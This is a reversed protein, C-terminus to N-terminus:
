PVEIAKRRLESLLVATAVSVNLSESSNEANGFRPITIKHTALKILEESLGKSENGMMLIGNEPLNNKYINTGGLVAAFVPIREYKQKSERIAAILDTYILRVRFVAGMTSQLVKPNLIDVTAKSCLIQKVGFWDATRVITGLNGPDQIDHLAVTLMENYIFSDSYFDDNIAVEAFIGQPTKQSTIKLAENETIEVKEINLPLSVPILGKMKEIYFLSKVRADSNLAELVMKEGEVLFAQNEQRSKKESLSSLYKIKNKSLM